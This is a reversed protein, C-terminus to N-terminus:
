YHFSTWSVTMPKILNPAQSFGEMDKGPPLLPKGIPEQFSHPPVLTSPLFNPALMPKNHIDVNMSPLAPRLTSLVKHGLFAQPACPPAMAAAPAAPRPDAGLPLVMLPSILCRPQPDSGPGVPHLGYSPAPAPLLGPVLQRQTASPDPTATLHPTQRPDPPAYHRGQLYSSSSSSSTSSPAPNAPECPATTTVRPLAMPPCALPGKPVALRLLEEVTIQKVIMHSTKDPQPASRARQSTDVTNTETGGEGPQARHYEEKAKSLLELIDIPRPEAVGNTKRPGPGGPLKSQAYDAEQKVIKVMLQAIRQCDKKDYFWISYIGLNANRYLLFPDQLQFELDKNIPEVLNETSLRNMITFGHRPSASRSYVFLTGEIETKEWENANSNFNYLAVQGTVDLLNNIYPDQRQLAALSMLHGAKSTEM